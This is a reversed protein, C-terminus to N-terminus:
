SSKPLAYVVLRYEASGKPTCASLMLVEHSAPHYIYSARRTVMSIVRYQINRSDSLIVILDGKRLKDLNYFPKTHTTRHGAIWITTQDGPRAPTVWMPGKDLVRGVQTKLGLRPIQLTDALAPGSLTM